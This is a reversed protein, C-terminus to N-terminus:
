PSVVHRARARADHDPVEPLCATMKGGVLYYTISYHFLLDLDRIDTPSNKSLNVEDISCLM